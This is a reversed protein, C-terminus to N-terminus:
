YIRLDKGLYIAALMSAVVKGITLVINLILLIKARYKTTFIEVAYSNPISSSFSYIMGLMLRVIAFSFTSDVIALAATITLNLLCAIILANKRGYKDAIWGGIVGGIIQGLFYLSSTM